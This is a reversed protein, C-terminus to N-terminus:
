LFNNEIRPWVGNQSTDCMRENYAFPGGKASDACDYWWVGPSISTKM